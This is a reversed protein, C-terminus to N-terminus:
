EGGASQDEPVDIGSAKLARILTAQYAIMDTRQGDVHRKTADVVAAVEQQKDEIRKTRKLLPLVGAFATVLLALATVLTATATIIQASNPPDVHPDIADALLLLLNV